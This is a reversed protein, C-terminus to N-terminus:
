HISVKSISPKLTKFPIHFDIPVVLVYMDFRIFTDEGGQLIQTQRAQM